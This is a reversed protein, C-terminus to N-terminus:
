RKAPGLRVGVKSGATLVAGGAPSSAAKSATLTRTAASASPVSAWLLAFSLLGLAARTAKGLDIRHGM